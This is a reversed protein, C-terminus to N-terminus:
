LYTSYPLTSVGQLKAVDWHQIAWDLVANGGNDALKAPPNQQLFNLVQILTEAPNSIAVPTALTQKSLKEGSANVVVPLHM